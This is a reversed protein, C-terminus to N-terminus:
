EDKIYKALDYAKAFEKNERLYNLLFYKHGRLTRDNLFEPRVEITGEDEVFHPDGGGYYDPDFEKLPKIEVTLNEKNVYLVVGFKGEEYEYIGNELIM